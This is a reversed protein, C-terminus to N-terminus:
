RLWRLADRLKILATRMRTKVTGLPIGVKEAIETQTMDSFYALQLLERERPELQGVAPKVL